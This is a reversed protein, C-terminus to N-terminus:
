EGGDQNARVTPAATEIEPALVWELAKIHVMRELQGNHSNPMFAELIVLTQNIAEISKM